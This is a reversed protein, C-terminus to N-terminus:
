AKYFRSLELAKRYRDGVSEPAQALVSFVVSGAAIKQCAYAPPPVEQVGKPTLSGGSFFVAMAVAGEPTGLGAAEALEKATRRNDDSPEKLWKEAAALAADQKANRAPREMTKACACAWEIAAKQDMTAAVLRVTEPHLGESLLSGAFESATTPQAPAAAGAVECLEEISRETAIAFPM